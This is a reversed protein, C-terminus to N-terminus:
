QLLDVVLGESELIGVLDFFSEETMHYRRQFCKTRRYMEFHEEMDLRNYKYKEGRTQREKGDKPSSRDGTGGDEIQGKERSSVNKRTAAVTARLEM